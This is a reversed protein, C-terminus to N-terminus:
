EKNLEDLTLSFGEEFLEHFIEVERLNYTELKKEVAKLAPIFEGNGAKIEEKCKIYASLTDAAKVLSRLEKENESSGFINEFEDKFEDPLMSCLSDKAKEEVKLYAEKIEATQYKVPTPLDGTFVESADHYMGLVAARQPDLRGGLYKNNILALAHATMAVQLSHEYVNEHMVNRMLAWRRIYKLRSLYAYFNYSM